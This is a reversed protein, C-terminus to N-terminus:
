ETRLAAGVPPHQLQLVLATFNGQPFRRVGNPCRGFGVNYLESEWPMRTYTPLTYRSSIDGLPDGPCIQGAHYGTVPGYRSVSGHIGSALALFLVIVIAVFSWAAEMEIGINKM